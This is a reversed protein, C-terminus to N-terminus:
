IKKRNEIFLKERELEAKLEEETPLYLMYKSAFLQKNENLVSYKVITQDKDTCLILGITPNDDDSKYKDEYLRVYMDMQGIDQHSLEAVKLDILVFCKLLYNYFVLDVYFHKTETSIRKQRAVFAFGKGLELLFENLKDILTEELESELYNSNDKLQVFELIYPDKLFDEPALEKTKERMENIVEKRDSSSLLREYYLSNIQRNLVRTSWGNAVTEEIYFQRAKPNELRLLQRYHTWSLEQRLADLIPFATYFKRMNSLNSKDFGKGVENSLNESLYGLLNKGYEARHKGNQEEEVIHKGVLWYTEVMAFNITKAVKQRADIIIQRITQYFQNNM